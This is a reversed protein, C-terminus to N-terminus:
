AGLGNPNEYVVSVRLVRLLFSRKIASSAFSGCLARLVARNDNRPAFRRLLRGGVIRPQRSIAESRECHRQQLRKAGLM